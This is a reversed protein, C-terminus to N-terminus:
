KRGRVLDSVVFLPTVVAFAATLVAEGLMSRELFRRRRLSKRAQRSLVFDRRRGNLARVTAWEKKGREIAAELPAFHLGISDPYLLVVTDADRLQETWGPKDDANVFVGQPYREAFLARMYAEDRPNAKLWLARRYLEAVSRRPDYDARWPNHFIGVIQKDM